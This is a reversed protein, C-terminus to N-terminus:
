NILVIIYIQTKHPPVPSLISDPDWQGPTTTLLDGDGGSFTNASHPLHHDDNISGSRHPGCGCGLNIIIIIKEVSFEKPDAASRGSWDLEHEDTPRYCVKDNRKRRRRRRRTERLKKFLTDPARIWGLDISLTFTFRESSCVCSMLDVKM